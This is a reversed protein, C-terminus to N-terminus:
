EDDGEDYTGLAVPIPPLWRLDFRREGKLAGSWYGHWHARRIHPSPSGHTGGRATTKAARIAAGLREGIAWLTPRDPAFLRWGGKVKEPHPYGAGYLTGSPTQADPDQSCLYLLFNVCARLTDANHAIHAADADIGALSVGARPAFIKATAVMHQLGEALTWHGLHLPISLLDGGCVDLLLRLEHGGSNADCELHAFFGSLAQSGFSLGPTEVYVCWEPLRYLVDCPMDGGMPTSTLAEYLEPDYRYLGQTPRWAGLAALAQVQPMHEIGLVPLRHHRSVISYWGALPLFCWQPWDPLDRGRDARLEDAQRWARPCSLAVQRLRETPTPNM